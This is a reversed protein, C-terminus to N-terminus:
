PLMCTKMGVIQVCEVMSDDRFAAFVTSARACHLYVITRSYGDIGGGGTYLLDGDSSLNLLSIMCSM